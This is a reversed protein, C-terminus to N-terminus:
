DLKKRGGDQEELRRLNKCAFLLTQKDSALAELQTFIGDIACM